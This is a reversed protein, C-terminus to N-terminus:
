LAGSPGARRRQAWWESWARAMRAREPAPAWADYRPHTAPPLLYRDALLRALGDHAAIRVALQAHDLAAILAPLADDGLRALLTAARERDSAEFAAMQEVLHARAQAAQQPHRARWAAYRGSEVMARLTAVEPPEATSLPREASSQATDKRDIVPKGRLASALEARFTQAPRFGQTDLLRKEPPRLVILRPISHVGFRRALAPHQEIDVRVCVCRAMLRQVAPDRFTSREMEKCPGCWEAYFDLLLPRGTQQALRRAAEYDTRWAIDACAVRALVLLSLALILGNWSVSHIRHPFCSPLLTDSNRRRSEQSRLADRM